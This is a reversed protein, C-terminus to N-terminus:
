IKVDGIKEKISLLNLAFARDIYGNEPDVLAGSGNMYYKVAGLTNNDYAGENYFKTGTMSYLAYQLASVEPGKDGPKIVDTVAAQKKSYRTILIVALIVGAAIFIYHKKEM